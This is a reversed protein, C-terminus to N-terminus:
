RLTGGPAPHSEDPATPAEILAELDQLTHGAALFDDVGVKAGHVHPLYVARVVSGRRQVIETLRELAARVKPNVMVDSDYVIRVERGANFAIYDLDALVTVGGFPNKGKFGYVGLVDVVAAGHSALSDAKKQGETIWLPRAPDTIWAQCRPPCDIRVGAEKPLLYKHVHGQADPQPHDPRYVTYPVRQQEKPLM